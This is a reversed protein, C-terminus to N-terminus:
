SSVHMRKRFSDEVRSLWAESCVRRGLMFKELQLIPDERDARRQEDIQPVICELIVPGGEGRARGISEQAARYLAVADNADVPICPVRRSKAIANINAARRRKRGEASPLVIFIIPLEFKSALALVRRWDEEAVEGGRVYVMVLNPHQLTKFALAAGVAIRLREGTDEVWPMQAVGKARSSNAKRRRGELSPGSMRRLLSAVTEGAVFDMVVGAQTDSVLDGEILEIATSVRCAEEGRTSVLRGAINGKGRRRAAVEDLVRAGVMAVYLQRLKRNNILPNEYVKMTGL